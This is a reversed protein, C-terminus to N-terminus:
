GVFWPRGRTLGVELTLFPEYARFRGHVVGLINISGAPTFNVPPSCELPSLRVALLELHHTANNARVAPGEVQILAGNPLLQHRPSTRRIRIAATSSYNLASTLEATYFETPVGDIVSMFGEHVIATASITLM